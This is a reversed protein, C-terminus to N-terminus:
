LTMTVIVKLNLFLFKFLEFINENVTINDLKHNPIDEPTVKELCNHNDRVRSINKLKKMHSINHNQKREFGDDSESKNITNIIKDNKRTYKRKNINVKLLIIKNM